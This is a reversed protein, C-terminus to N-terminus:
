KWSYMPILGLNRLIDNRWIDTKNQSNEFQKWRSEFIVATHEQHNLQLSDILWCHYLFHMLFSCTVFRHHGVELLKAIDSLKWQIGSIECSQTIKSVNNKKSNNIRICLQKPCVNSGCALLTKAVYCGSLVSAIGVAAVDVCDGDIDWWSRLYYKKKCLWFIISLIRTQETSSADVNPDLGTGLGTYYLLDSTWLACTANVMICMPTLYCTRWAAIRHDPSPWHLDNLNSTFGLPEWPEITYKNQNSLTISFEFWFVYLKPNYTHTHAKRWLVCAFARMM